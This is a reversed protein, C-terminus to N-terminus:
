LGNICYSIQSILRIQGVVEGFGRRPSITAYGRARSARRPATTTALRRKEFAILRNGGKGRLGASAAGRGVRSDTFDDGQLRNKSKHRETEFVKQEETRKSKITCRANHM